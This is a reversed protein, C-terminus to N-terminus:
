ATTKEKVSLRWHSVDDGFGPDRCHRTKECEIGGSVGTSAPVLRRRERQQAIEPEIHGVAEHNRGVDLRGTVIDSSRESSETIPRRRGIM